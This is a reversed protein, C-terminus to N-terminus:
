LSSLRVKPESELIVKPVCRTAPFRDSRPLENRNPFVSRNRPLEASTLRISCGPSFKFTAHFAIIVPTVTGLVIYFDLWHRSNGQRALWGTHDFFEFSNFYRLKCSEV